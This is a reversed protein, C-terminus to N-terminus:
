GLADDPESKLADPYGASMTPEPGSIAVSRPVSGFGGRALWTNVVPIAMLKSLASAISIVFAFAAGLWALWSAPLVDALAALVQPAVAHLVAVSGGLTVLFALATQVATRIWRQRTYWIPQVTVTREHAGM